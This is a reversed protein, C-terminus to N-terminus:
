EDKQLFSIIFDMQKKRMPFDFVDYYNGKKIFVCSKGNQAYDSMNPIIYHPYLISYLKKWRSIINSLSETSRSYKAILYIVSGDFIKINDNLYNSIRLFDLFCPQCNFDSYRIVFIVKENKLEIKKNESLINITKLDKVDIIYDSQRKNLNIFLFLFFIIIFLLILLKKTRSLKM